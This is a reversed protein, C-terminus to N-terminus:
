EAAEKTVLNCNVIYVFVVWRYNQPPTGEPFKRSPFHSHLQLCHEWKKTFRSGPCQGKQQRDTLPWALERHVQEWSLPPTTHRSSRQANYIHPGATMVAKHKHAVEKTANSRYRTGIGRIPMNPSICIKAKLLRKGWSRLIYGCLFMVWIIPHTRQTLQTILM